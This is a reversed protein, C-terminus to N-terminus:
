LEEFTISNNLLIFTIISILQIFTLSFLYVYFCGFSFIFAICRLPTRNKSEFARLILPFTKKEIAKQSHLQHACVVLHPSPHHFHFIDIFHIVFSSTEEKLNIDNSNLIAIYENMSVIPSM